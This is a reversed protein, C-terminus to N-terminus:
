SPGLACPEIPVGGIEVDVAFLGGSGPPDTRQPDATTIYLTEGGFACSTVKPAGVAVRGIVAGSPDLRLVASGGWIAAWVNGATDLAIGDIYGDDTPMEFFPTPTDLEAHDADFGATWITGAFTDVYYINQGDPSWGIGNPLTLQHMRQHWAGDIIVGIGGSAHQRDRTTSGVWLRGREDVAGDNTKSTSTDLWGPIVVVASGDAAIHDVGGPHVAVIGGDSASAVFTTEDRVQSSTVGAAESYRYMVSADIDLWVTAEAKPDWFPSEGLQCKTDAVLKATFTQTM